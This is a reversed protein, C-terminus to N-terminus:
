DEKFLENIIESLIRAKISHHYSDEGDKWECRKNDLYEKFQQDKWEAMEKIADIIDSDFGSNGIGHKAGIERAKDLNTM